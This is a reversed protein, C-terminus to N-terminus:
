GNAGGVDLGMQRARAALMADAFGYADIALKEWPAGQFGAGTAMGALAQGAFWDRLDALAVPVISENNRMTTTM